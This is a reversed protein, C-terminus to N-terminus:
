WIICERCTKKVFDILTIFSICMFFMGDHFTGSEFCGMMLCGMASLARSVLRGVDSFTGHCKIYFLIGKLLLSTKKFIWCWVVWPM